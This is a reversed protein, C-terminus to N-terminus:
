KKLMLWCEPVFTGVTLVRLEGSTVPMGHWALGCTVNFISIIPSYQEQSYKYQLSFRVTTELLCNSARWQSTIQLGAPQGLLVLWFSPSWMTFSLTAILWLMLAPRSLLSRFSFHYYWENSHTLIHPQDNQLLVCGKLFFIWAGRYEYYCQDCYGPCPLLRLTWRCIFPYLLYPIYIYHFIVWGYFSHFCALQLLM